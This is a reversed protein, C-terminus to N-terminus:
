RFLQLGFQGGEVALYLPLQCGLLLFRGSVPLFLAAALCQGLRCVRRFRTIAGIVVDAARNHCAPGSYGHLLFVPPHLQLLFHVFFNM